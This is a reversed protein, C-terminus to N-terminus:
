PWYWKVVGAEEVTHVHWIPRFDPNPSGDPLTSQDSAGIIDVIRADGDTPGWRFAVIDVSPDDEVGRKWNLGWRLEGSLRLRLGVRRCFALNGDHTGDPPQISWEAEVAWFGDPPEPLDGPVSPVPSDVPGPDLGDMLRTMFVCESPTFQYTGRRQSLKYRLVDQPSQGRPIQYDVRGPRPGWAGALAKGLARLQPHFAMGGARIDAFYHHGIVREYDRTLRDYIEGAELTEAVSGKGSWDDLRLTLWVYVDPSWSMVADLDRRMADYFAQLPEGISRYTQLSPWVDPGYWSPRQAPWGRRDLYAVIPLPSRQRAVAVKDPMVSLDRASVWWAVTPNFAAECANGPQDATVILATGLGAGIQVLEQRLVEPDREDGVFTQCNGFPDATELKQETGDDDKVIRYSYFTSAFGPRGYAPMSPYGGSDPVPAGAFSVLPQSWDIQQAWVANEGGNLAACVWSGAGSQGYGTPLVYGQSADSWPRVRTQGAQEYGLWLEEDPGVLVFPNVLGGFPVGPDPAPLGYTGFNGAADCWIVHDASLAYLQPYPYRTLTVASPDSWDPAGPDMNGRRYCAVGTGGQYSMLVILADDRTMWLAIAGSLVLGWSTETSGPGSLLSWAYENAGGVVINFSVQRLRELNAGDPECRVIWSLGDIEQLGIVRNGAINSQGSQMPVILSTEGGPPTSYVGSGGQGSVVLGSHFVRAM